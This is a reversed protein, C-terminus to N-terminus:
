INGKGSAMGQTTQGTWATWVHKGPENNRLLVFNDVLASELERLETHDICIVGPVVASDDLGIHGKSGRGTSRVVEYHAGSSLQAVSSARRLREYTNMRANSAIM